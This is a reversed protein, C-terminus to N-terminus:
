SVKEFEKDLIDFSWSRYVPDNKINGNEIIWFVNATDQDRYETIICYAYGNTKNSEVKLIDGIQYKM